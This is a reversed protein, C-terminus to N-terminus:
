QTILVDLSEQWFVQEGAHLHQPIPIGRFGTFPRINLADLFQLVEAIWKHLQGPGSRNIQHLISSIDLWSRLLLRGAWVNDLTLATQGSSVEPAIFLHYAYPREYPELFELWQRHLQREGSLGANWKFEVLILRSEGSAWKLEVLLDPEVHNRPWFRMEAKLLDGDPWPLDGCDAGIVTAWFLEIAQDPLFALPGMILATIEDEECVRRQSPERHGLYCKYHETKRRTIAHLM